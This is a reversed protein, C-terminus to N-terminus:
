FARHVVDLVRGTHLNVLVADHRVKLWRNGGGAKALRYQRPHKIVDQRAIFGPELRSGIALRQVAPRHWGPGRHDGRDVVVVKTDHRDFSGPQAMAASPLITAAAIAAIVFKNM